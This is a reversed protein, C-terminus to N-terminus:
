EVSSKLPLAPPSTTRSFYLLVRTARLLESPAPPYYSPPAPPFTTTYVLVCDPLDTSPHPGM